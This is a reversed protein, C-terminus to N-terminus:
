ASAGRAAIPWVREVRQGRHGVYWDYLNVAPDCHGPVLRLKEGLKLTTGPALELNGHEDSPGAYRVGKPEDIRPPGSEFTMAKLGADCIAMGARPVSMVTSLVTLSNEFGKELGTTGAARYDADMFIYSGAQLENLVGLSLDIMLSGTGGGAVTECPLGAGALAKITERTLQAAREIARRREEHYRLHQASGHYAQLGRFRLGPTSAIWKALAVAPAGPDVGCRRGGVEIEVLVDITSGAAVAAAGLEHAVNADDVCIGIRARKALAAVRAIKSAGVVENSILVDQIGGEVLIEAESVKQCCAGVAGRAIQEAAILPSKHTKAHPRLRAKRGTLLTAMLDLNREYADLDVLLAPTEVADLTMGPEAPRPQVM